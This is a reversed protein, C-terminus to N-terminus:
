DKAPGITRGILPVSVKVEAPTASVPRLNRFIVFKTEVDNGAIPIETLRAFHESELVEQFLRVAGIDAWFATQFVVLDVAYDAFMKELDQRTVTYESIGFNRDIRYDVLFKEARLVKAPAAGAAALERLAFIFSASRRGHFMIRSGPRVHERVFVAAERHGTVRPVSKTAITHVFLAAAIVVAFPGLLRSRGRWDLAAAAFAAMPVYLFLILRPQKLDIFTFFAYGVVFWLLLFGAFPTLLKEREFAVIRGLYLAALVLPVIGVERPFRRAYYTLNAVSLKGGTEDGGAAQELNFGGFVFSVVLLPALVVGGVIAAAWVERSLLIRPGRQAIVMVAGAIGVFAITQKAYMGCALLFVAALLARPRHEELYRLLFHASWVLFAYAPLELMVQRSWLAIGPMALAFLAAACAQWGGIRSRCLEFVGVAFALTFLAVALQAAAHNVGLVAFVAAEFVYFLPPYFLISLAPYTTFYDEAFGRPDRVPMAAVLDRVFVGNMAHSPADFWWFDGATPATMFLAAVALAILAYAVARHAGHSGSLPAANM